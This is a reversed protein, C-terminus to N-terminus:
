RAIEDPVGLEQMIMKTARNRWHEKAPEAADKFKAPVNWPYGALCTARIDSAIQDLRNM